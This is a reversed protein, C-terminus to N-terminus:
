SASTNQNPPNLVSGFYGIEPSPPGDYGILPGDPVSLRVVSGSSLRLHTYGNSTLRSAGREVSPYKSWDFLRNMSYLSGFPWHRRILKQCYMGAFDSCGYKYKSVDRCGAATKDFPFM